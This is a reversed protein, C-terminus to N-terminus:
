RNGRLNFDLGLGAPSRRTEPEALRIRPRGERPTEIAQKMRQLAEISRTSGALVIEDAGIRLDDLLIEDPPTAEEILMLIELASGRKMLRDRLIEHRARAAKLRSAIQEGPAVARTGPLAKTFAEVVAAEAARSRADLTLSKLGFAAAFLLLALGAAVAPWNRLIPALRRRPQIWNGPLRAAAPRAAREALDAPEIRDIAAPDLGRSRALEDIEASSRACQLLRSAADPHCATGEAIQSM